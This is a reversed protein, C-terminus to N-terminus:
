RKGFDAENAEYWFLQDPLPVAGPKKRDIVLVQFGTLSQMICRFASFTPINNAYNEWAKRMYQESTDPYIFVWDFASRQLPPLIVPHQLEKLLGLHCRRGNMLVAHLHGLAPESDDAVVLLDKAKAGAARQLNFLERVEEESLGTGERLDELKVGMKHIIETSLTSKGARRRGLVLITDSKELVTPDFKRLRLAGGAGAALSDVPAPQLTPGNPLDDNESTKDEEPVPVAPPQTWGSLKVVYDWLGM